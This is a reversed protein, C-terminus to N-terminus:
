DIECWELEDRLSTIEKQMSDVKGSLVDLIQQAQKDTVLYETGGIFVKTLKKEM